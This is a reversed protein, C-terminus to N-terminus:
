KQGVTDKDPLSACDFVNGDEGQFIHSDACVEEQQPSTLDLQNM